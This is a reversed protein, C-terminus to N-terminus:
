SIDLLKKVGAGPRPALALKTHTHTHAHHCEAPWQAATKMKEANKKKLKFIDTQRSEERRQAKM